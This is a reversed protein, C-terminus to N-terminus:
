ALEDAGRARARRQPRGKAACQGRRTAWPTSRSRSISTPPEAVIVEAVERGREIHPARVFGSGRGSPRTASSRHAWAIQLRSVVAIAPVANARATGARSYKPRLCRPGYHERAIHRGRRVIDAFSRLVAFLVQRGPRGVGPSGVWLLHRRRRWTMNLRVCASPTGAPRRVRAPRGSGRPSLAHADSWGPAARRIM